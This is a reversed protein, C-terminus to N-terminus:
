GKPPTASWTTALRQTSDGVSRTLQDAAGAANRMGSDVDKIRSADVQKLTDGLEKAKVELADFEVGARAYLSSWRPQDRLRRGRPRVEQGVAVAKAVNEAEEGAQKLNGIFKDIKSVDPTVEFGKEIAKGAQEAAKGVKKFESIADSGDVNVEFNVQKGAM